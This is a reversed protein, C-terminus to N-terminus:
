HLSPQPHSTITRAKTIGRLGLLMPPPETTDLPAPFAGAAEEQQVVRSISEELAKREGATDVTLCKVQLRRSSRILADHADFVRVSAFNRAPYEVYEVTRIGRPSPAAYPFRRKLNVM